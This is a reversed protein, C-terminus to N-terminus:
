SAEEPASSINVRAALRDALTSLAPLAFGHEHDGVVEVGLEAVLVGVDAELERRLRRRHLARALSLVASTVRPSLLGCCSTTCM